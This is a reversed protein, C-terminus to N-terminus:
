SVSRVIDRIMGQEDAWAQWVATAWRISRVALDGHDDPFLMDVVTLEAPRAWMIAPMQRHALGQLLAIRQTPSFGSELVAQLGALHLAVSRRNRPDAPDPHSAMYADVMTGHQNSYGFREYEDAQLLGFAEWCGTTAPVYPHAQVEASRLSVGCVCQEVPPM